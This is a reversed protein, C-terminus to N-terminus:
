DNTTVDPHVNVIVLCSGETTLIRDIDGDLDREDMVSISPMGYAAAITAFDPSGDLAM